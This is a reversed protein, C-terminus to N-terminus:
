GLGELVRAFSREARRRKMSVLKAVEDRNVQVGEFEIGDLLVKGRRSRVIVTSYGDPSGVSGISIDALRSVFDGCIQCGERVVDQLDKVSCSYTEEGISVEYRGKSIQIRDADELDIGLIVNIRSRLDAYDFSEFCFLGILVIDSGPFERDLYGKQLRRVSRIQCPTGVVAIRKKGERLARCLQSIVSVRSYKTGRAQMAGTAEDVLVAEPNSGRRKVVVVAADLVGKELGAKIISTAVGGDQGAVSTRGAILHFLVGLDEDRVGDLYEDEIERSMETTVPFVNRMETIASTPCVLACSGCAICDESLDGFPADVGREVGRNITNIASVGVLEACVRTCLGCLICRENDPEFRPAEIGYDKALELIRGEKPCRALLLELIMKRLDIVAPSRTRVVLGDEALYNCASVIKKRGRKEIEVSCLRCAGYPELAPHYCLTPIHIDARRAVELITISRDAEVVRDDITLRM